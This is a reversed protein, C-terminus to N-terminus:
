GVPLRREAAIRLAEGPRTPAVLFGTLHIARGNPESPTFAFVTTVTENTSIELAHGSAPGTLDAAGTDAPALRMSALQDSRLMLTDALVVPDHLVIGAPVLVLWRRSLRHWRPGLLITGLVAVLSAPVGLWWNGAALALPGALLGAAWLVWALGAAAGVAAPVRLPLRVEDGYASAQVMWRGFEATFTTGVAIAAPAALAVADLASAGGVAAVVAVILTLPTVLRVVTLSRVSPILLAFAVVGWLTWGGVAATWRVADSRDDIAGEIAAGGLLAVALWSLRALWPLVARSSPRSM